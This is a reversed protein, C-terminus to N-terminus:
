REREKQQGTPNVDRSSRKPRDLQWDPGALMEDIRQEFTDEDIEGALYQEKIESVADQEWDDTHPDDERSGEDNGIFAIIFALVPGLVILLGVLAAIVGLTVSGLEIGVAIGAFVVGLVMSIGTLIVLIGLLASVVAAWPPLDRLWAPAEM